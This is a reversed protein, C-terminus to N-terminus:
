SASIKHNMLQLLMAPSVVLVGHILQDFIHGFHAKDGTVLHTCGLAIAAALVPQDKEPLPLGRALSMSIPALQVSVLNLVELPFPLRDKVSLNRTAEEVVYLDAILDHGADVSSQLLRRVAGDSWAASFLVSADLFIRM